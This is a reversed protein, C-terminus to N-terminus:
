KVKYLKKFYDLALQVDAKVGASLRTNYLKLFDNVCFNEEYSCYTSMMQSTPGCSAGQNCALFNLAFKSIKRVYKLNDSMILDKLRPLVIMERYMISRNMSQPILDPYNQAVLEFFVLSQENNLPERKSKLLEGIISNPLLNATNTLEEISLNLNYNPHQLNIEECILDADEFYKKQIKTYEAEIKHKKFEPNNQALFYTICKFYKKQSITINAVPDQSFALKEFNVTVETSDKLILQVENLPKVKQNHTFKEIKTTEPIDLAEDRNWFYYGIGSFLILALFFLIFLKITKTM